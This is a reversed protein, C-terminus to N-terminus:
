EHPAEVLQLQGAAISVGAAEVRFKFRLDDDSLLFIEFPTDPKLPASFKVAPFEAVRTEADRIERLADIIESLIVVGPM